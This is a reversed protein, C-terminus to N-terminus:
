LCAYRLCVCLTRGVRVEEDRLVFVNEPARPVPELRHQQAVGSGSSGSSSSTSSSSSVSLSSLAPSPARPLLSPRQPSTAASSATSASFASPSPCGGGLPSAPPVLTALSLTSSFSRPTTMVHAFAAALHPPLPPQPGQQAPGAAKHTTASPIAAQMQLFAKTDESLTAWLELLRGLDQQIRAREPEDEEAAASAAPDHMARNTQPPPPREPKTNPQQIPDIWFVYRDISRLLHAAPGVRLGVVCRYSALTAGLAEEETAFGGNPHM